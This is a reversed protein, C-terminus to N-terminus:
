AANQPNSRIPPTEANPHNLEARLTQLLPEGLKTTLRENAPPHNNAEWLGIATLDRLLRDAHRDVTKATPQPQHHEEMHDRHKTRTTIPQDPNSGTLGDCFRTGAAQYASGVEDSASAFERTRPIYVRMQFVM